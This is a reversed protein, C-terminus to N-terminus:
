RSLVVPVAQRTDGATVYYYVGPAVRRGSDDCGDWGFETGTGLDRVRRGDAAVVLARVAGTGSVRLRGSGTIPNPWATLRAVVAAGREAVAGVEYKLITGNAGVAWGNTADPFHVANLKVTVFSSERQWSNGNDRTHYIVGSDGVVWGENPVPFCVGEFGGSVGSNRASWVDGSNATFIITGNQGVAYGESPSYFWLAKLDRTTGSPQSQWSLGGDRTARITGGRGVAWANMDMMAAMAEWHVASSDAVEWSNGNDMSRIIIGNEGAAYMRGAMGCAGGRLNASVGPQLEEWVNGGDPSRYARGNDGVILGTVPGDFALAHFNANGLTLPQWSRGGNDTKLLTGRAGVVFGRNADVFWVAELEETTGSNQRVWSQAPAVTVAAALGLMLWVNLNKM